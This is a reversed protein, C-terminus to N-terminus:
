LNEHPVVDRWLGKQRTVPGELTLGPPLVRDTTPTSSGSWSPGDRLRSFYVDPTAGFVSGGPEIARFFSLGRSGTWLDERPM